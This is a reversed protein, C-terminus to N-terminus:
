CPNLTISDTESCGTNDTIVVVYTVPCLGSISQTTQGGPSWLYTYGAGSGGSPNATATGDCVGVCSPDTKTLNAQIQSPENVTVTDVTICGSADQVVVSYTGGCLGSATDNTQLLPDNWQYNFPSNGLASVYALGDCSGYCSVSDSNMTLTPGNVNSILTIFTQNCGLNDTITVSYSGPCLNSITDNMQGGPSWLFSYPAGSGGGPTVISVGDCLGCTANTNNFAATIANGDVITISTNATCGNADTVTVSYSGACLGSITQTTQGGPTWLYSYPATGGTPNVTIQGNCSGNCTANTRTFPITIASSQNITFTQTATCGNPM